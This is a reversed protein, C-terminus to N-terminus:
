CDCPAMVGRCSARCGGDWLIWLTMRVIWAVPSPVQFVISCFPSCAIPQDDGVCAGNACCIESIELLKDDLLDWPCTSSYAASDVFFDQTRRHGDAPQWWSESSAVMQVDDLLMCGCSSTTSQFAILTTAGHTSILHAVLEWEQQHNAWSGSRTFAESALLQGDVFVDMTKVDGGCGQHGNLAYSLM